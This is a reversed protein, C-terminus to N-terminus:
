LTITGRGRPQEDGVLGLDWCRRSANVKWHSIGFGTPPMQQSSGGVGSSPGLLARPASSVPGPGLALFSTAPSQGHLGWAKHAKREREPVVPVSAGSPPAGQHNPAYVWGLVQPRSQCLTSKGYANAAHILSHGEVRTPLPSKLLILLCFRQQCLQVGSNEQSLGDHLKNAHLNKQSSSSTALAFLEFAFAKWTFALPSPGPTQGTPHAPAPLLCSLGTM